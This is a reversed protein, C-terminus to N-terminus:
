PNFRFGLLDWIKVFQARADREVKLLPNVHFVGTAPTKSVLGESLILRRAMDARDLSELAAQFLTQRELSKAERAGLEAWLNKSRESLHDPAPPFDPATSKSMRKM